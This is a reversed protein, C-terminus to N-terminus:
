HETPPTGLEAEVTSVRATLATLDSASAFAATDVAPLADIRANVVAVATSLEALKEFVTMIFKGEFSPRPSILKLAFMMFCRALWNRIM